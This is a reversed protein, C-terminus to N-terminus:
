YTYIKSFTVIGVHNTNMIIKIITITIVMITITITITIAIIMTITITAYIPMILVTINM